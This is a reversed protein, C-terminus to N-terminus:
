VETREIPLLRKQHTQDNRTALRIPRHHLALKAGGSPPPPSRTATKLHRDRNAVLHADTRHSSEHRFRHSSSLTRETTPLLRSAGSALNALHEARFSALRETIRYVECGAQM